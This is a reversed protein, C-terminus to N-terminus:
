GNNKAEMQLYSNIFGELNGDMVLQVNGEEYGTRADKVLTYPCFVYSRIQSGWEINKKEGVINDLKSRQKEQEILMLKGKLM